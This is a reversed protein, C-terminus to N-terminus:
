AARAKSISIMLEENLIQSARSAVNLRYFRGAYGPHNVRKAFVTKGAVQFKLAQRGKPTIVHPEAGLDAYEAYPAQWEMNIGTPTASARFSLRLRNTRSPMLPRVEGPIRIAAKRLAFDIASQLRGSMNSKSRPDFVSTITLRMIAM